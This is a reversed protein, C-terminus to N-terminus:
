MEFSITVACLPVMATRELASSPVHKSISNGFCPPIDHDQDDIILWQAAIGNALHELVLAVLHADRAVAELCHVPERVLQGREEDEIQEHGAHVAVLEVFLHLLRRLERLN